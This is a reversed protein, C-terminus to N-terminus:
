NFNRLVTWGPPNMDNLEIGSTPNAWRQPAVVEKGSSESLWAGWWSFSSNPIIHHRCYSMLQMDRFSDQGKNWDIYHARDLRLNARCWEIDDSFVCFVLDSWRERLHGLAREYYHLPALDGLASSALYDGRRVHLAVSTAGRAVEAAALNRVDTIPPFQFASRIEQEAGEFYKWSTWCQDFVVNGRQQFVAPDYNHKKQEAGYYSLLGVLRAARRLVRVPPSRTNILAGFIPKRDEVLGFVRALEAGNHQQHYDFWSFDCSVDLGRKRM